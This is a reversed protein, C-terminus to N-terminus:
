LESITQKFETKDFLMEDFHGYKCKYGFIYRVGRILRKWFPLEVLHIQLYVSNDEEDEPFTNLIIQHEPSHCDDILLTSKM